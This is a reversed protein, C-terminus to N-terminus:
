KPDSEAGEKVEDSIKRVIIEVPENSTEVKTTYGREKGLTTLVFKSAVQDGRKVDNFINEEAQDVISERQEDYIQKLLPTENIRARLADRKVDLAECITSLNGRASVIAEYIEGDNYPVGSM